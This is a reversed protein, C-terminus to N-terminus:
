RRRAWAELSPGLLWREGTAFAAVQAVAHVVHKIGGILLARARRSGLYPDGSIPPSNHISELELGTRALAIPLTRRSFSTAHFVFTAFAPTQCPRRRRGDLAHALRFSALHFRENPTRIFIRGSPRVLRAAERLLSLPDGVMELVNWITILDFSADAVPLQCADGVFAAIGLRTRAYAVATPDVDVGTANWGAAAALRVFFGFGCGIDLLRGPTGATAIFGRFAPVRQSAM